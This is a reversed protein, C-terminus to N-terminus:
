RSRRIRYFQQAKSNVALPVRLPSEGIYDKWNGNVADAIQLNGERWIVVFESAFSGFLGWKGNATLHTRIVIQPLETWQVREWNPDDLLKIRDRMTKKSTINILGSGSSWIDLSNEDNEKITDPLLIINTLNVFGRVSLWNDGTFPEPVVIEAAKEETLHPFFGPIEMKWTVGNTHTIWAFHQQAQAKSPALSSALAVVALGFTVLEKTWKCNQM